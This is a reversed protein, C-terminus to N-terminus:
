DNLLFKFVLFSLIRGSILSGGCSFVFEADGKEKKMNKYKLLAYFPYQGPKTKNGGTIRISNKLTGCKEHNLLKKKLVIPIDEDSPQSINPCCIVDIESECEEKLESRENIQLVSSDNCYKRILCKGSEGNGLTCSKPDIISDRGFWILLIVGFVFALTVCTFFFSSNNKGMENLPVEAERWWVNFVSFTTSSQL